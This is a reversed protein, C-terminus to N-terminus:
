YKVHYTDCFERAAANGCKAALSCCSKAKKLNNKHAYQRGLDYLTYGLTEDQFNSKRVDAETTSFMAYYTEVAKEYYEIARDHDNKRAYSDGLGDYIWYDLTLSKGGNQEFWKMSHQITDDNRSLLNLVVIYQYENYMSLEEVEMLAEFCDAAGKYNKEDLFKQSTVKLSDTYALAADQVSDHIEDADNITLRAKDDISLDGFCDFASNGILLPVSQKKIVFAPLDKVIVNGMRLSRIVFSGAKTTSGDPMKVTTMGKVDNDVIYGNEYLFQYTTSSVSAFWSEPVFYTKVGVGNLTADVMYKGEEIETMEIVTQAKACTMSLLVASLTAIIIHRARM